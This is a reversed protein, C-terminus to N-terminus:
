PVALMKDLNGVRPHGALCLMRQQINEGDRQARYDAARIIEVFNFFIGFVLPFKEFHKQIKRVAHRGVIGDIPPYRPPVQTFKRPADYLPRCYQRFPELSDDCDVPLRQPKKKLIGRFLVNKM